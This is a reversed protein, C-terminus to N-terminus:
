REKENSQSFLEADKEGERQLGEDRTFFFCEPRGQITRQKRRVEQGKDVPVFPICPLSSTICIIISSVFLDQIIHHPVCEGVDDEDDDQHDWGKRRSCSWILRCLHSVSPPSFSNFFVFLTVSPHSSTFGQLSSSTCLVTRCCLCKRM